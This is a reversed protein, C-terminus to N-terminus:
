KKIIERYNNLYKQTENRGMIRRYESVANNFANKLNNTSENNKEKVSVKLENLIEELNNRAGIGDIM